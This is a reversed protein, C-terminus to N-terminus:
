PLSDGTQASMLRRTVSDMIRELIIPHETYYRINQRFVTDTIGYHGFLQDYYDKTRRLHDQTAGGTMDSQERDRAKQQSLDAEIIQVDTMLETMEQEGLLRDPVFGKDKRGCASLLVMLILFSISKM